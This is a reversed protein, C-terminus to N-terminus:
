LSFRFAFNHLSEFEFAFGAHGLIVRHTAFYIYIEPIGIFNGFDVRYGIGNQSAVRDLTASVIVSHSDIGLVM